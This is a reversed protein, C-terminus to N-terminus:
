ATARRMFDRPRIGLLWLVAFYTAAGGCVLLTLRLIKEAFGYHLWTSQAGMGFWLVVAMASVALLLKLVFLPWGPLPQFINDRRLHYYLLGANICAGLSIAM